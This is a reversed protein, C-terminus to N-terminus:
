SGNRAPAARGHAPSAGMGSQRARVVQRVAAAGVARGLARASERVPRADRRHRHVAHRGADGHQGRHRRGAGLRRWLAHSLVVVDPGRPRDDAGTFDRGLLPAVGLTRFYGASVRQGDLREPVDRGDSPRNGPRSSRWRPSRTAGSRWSATPGTPSTSGPAPRHRGGLDDDPRQPDPYPLREFLVPNVTSFIATAAGIGLALTLVALSTFAADKRLRRAAYTLDDAAGGVVREWGHERVEERASLTGGLELGRPAGPRRPRCAAPWRADAAAQDLWHEVEDDLERDAEARRTLVRLGRSLQRWLSM